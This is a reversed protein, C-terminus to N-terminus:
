RNLSPRTFYRDVSLKCYAENPPQVTSRSGCRSQLKEADSPDSTPAPGLRFYCDTLQDLLRSDQDPAGTHGM